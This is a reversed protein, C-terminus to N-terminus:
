FGAQNEFPYHRSAFPMSGSEVWCDFVEPIRTGKVTREEDVWLEIPDLFERHLDTIKEAQKPDVAWERLEAISSIIRTVKQGDKNAGRWIPMPTGWYRSRSINWDPANELGHLF